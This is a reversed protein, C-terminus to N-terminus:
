AESGPPIARKPWELRLGSGARAVEVPRDVDAEAVAARILTLIAERMRQSLLETREPLLYALEAGHRSVDLGVSRAAALVVTTIDVELTQAIITLSAPDPFKRQPVGSGLQQWRGRTLAGGSARVLDGYSWGRAQMGTRVLDHLDPAPEDDENVHMYTSFDETRPPPEARAGDAGRDADPAAMGASAGIKPRPVSNLSM